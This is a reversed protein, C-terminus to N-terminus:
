LYGLGKLKEEIQLTEDDAYDSETHVHQMQIDAIKVEQNQVFEGTFCDVMVKGDMESPVVENMTYLVTPAVDAINIEQLSKGPIFPAGYAM